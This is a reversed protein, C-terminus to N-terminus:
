STHSAIITSWRRREDRTVAEIHLTRGDYIIRDAENLDDIYRTQIEYRKSVQIRGRDDTEEVTGEEVRAPVGEYLSSWSKSAGGYADLSGSSMRQVNISHRLVIM